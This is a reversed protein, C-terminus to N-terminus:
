KGVKKDMLLPKGSNRRKLGKELNFKIKKDDVVYRNDYPM